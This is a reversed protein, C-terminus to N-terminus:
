AGANKVAGKWGIAGVGYDMRIKWRLGDVEFGMENDMFPTQVGDLFAVEIVPEDSPNAFM